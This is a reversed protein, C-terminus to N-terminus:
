NFTHTMGVVAGFDPSSLTPALTLGGNVRWRGDESTGGVGMALGMQNHYYGTAVAASIKGPRDDYHLGSIAIAAATGGYSKKLNQSVQNQLNGLGANMQNLNVADTGNVAPAVNTVRRESGAAGVSVTNAESAVSNAGLAVSNDANAVAGNGIATSSQGSAVAGSGIATANAGTAVPVAYTDPNGTVWVAGAPSVNIIAASIAGNLQEVNVADTLDIGAAVNHLTVAGAMPGVLTVDNSVPQGNAGLGVTPSAASSFQLPANNQLAAISNDVGAYSQGYVSYNPSAVAGTNPDYGSGGGLSAVVSGGLTDLKTDLAKLQSVNVADTLDVGAAVNHLTVAGATPGVLAVDNSVPLGNAGLGVTPSAATSFQLPALNQLAAFAAGVNSQPQGYVNYTPGTFTGDAPNFQAGGGLAQAVGSGFSNVKGDELELALNTANLQSGNVADTSDYTLRGAAVNTLTREAGVSGISVTSTPAAGAFDFRMGNLTVASTGVAAATVSGSGLAVDNANLAQSNMGLAISAPGSANSKAGFALAYDGSANAGSSNDQDGGFAMAGRGTAQSSAGIAVSYDGNATTVESYPHGGIAIANEGRAAAGDGIAVQSGAGTANAGAGIAVPSAGPLATTDAHTDVGLAVGNDAGGMLNTASAGSGIVVAQAFGDGAFVLGTVSLLMALIRPVGPTRQRRSLAKGRGPAANPLDASDSKQIRKLRNIM